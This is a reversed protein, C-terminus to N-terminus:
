CRRDCLQQHYDAQNNFGILGGIQTGTGSVSGTAYSNEIDGRNLGVLGGIRGIGSVTGTACSNTITGQFNYGVLGGVRNDMGSVTSTACSNKILADKGHEGVLGGVSLGTGSVTGSAYSNTIVGANNGALSGVVSRGTIDMNLLGVATLTSNSGTAGFLGIVDTGSTNIYLNSITYGNGNFTASFSVATSTGIPEWGAGTTWATNINGSGYSSPSKFDLSRMLEFGTCTSSCGQQMTGSGSLNERIANLDELDCIDILGNDNRDIDTPSCTTQASVGQTGALAFLLLAVLLQGLVRALNLRKIMMKMQNIHLSNNICVYDQM